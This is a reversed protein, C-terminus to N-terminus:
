GASTSTNKLSNKENTLSEIEKKQQVLKGKAMTNLRKVKDRDAEVESKAKELAEKAEKFQAVEQCLM